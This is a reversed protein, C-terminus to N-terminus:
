PREVFQWKRYNFYAYGGWAIFLTILCAGGFTTWDFPLAPKGLLRPSQNFASPGIPQLIFHRFANIFAAIPNLMYLTYIWPHKQVLSSTYYIQDSPYLVPMIFFALNFVTQLIFKVDEYFVNLAAVFLACGTVLLAEMVVVFPFFVLTPLIPIGGHFLPAIVLFAVFYVAWGLLFHVGNSIVNALPIAERPLYIKRIMTYNIVVSQSADQIGTSFFTWPIIGSLLYASFNKAAVGLLNRLLFTFVLVQMLPPIISWIFGLASNKYRVKLERAVLMKLLERFKWLEKLESRMTIPPDTDTLPTM